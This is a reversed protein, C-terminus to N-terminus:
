RCAASPPRTVVSQLDPPQEPGTNALRVPGDVGHFLNTKSEELRVVEHLTDFRRKMDELEEELEQRMEDALEHKDILQSL